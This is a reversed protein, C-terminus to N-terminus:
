RHLSSASHRTSAASPRYAEQPLSERALDAEKKPTLLLLRYHVISLLPCYHVNISLLPRYHVIISLDTITRQGNSDMVTWRGNCDM